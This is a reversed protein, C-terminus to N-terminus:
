CRQAHTHTRRVLGFMVNALAWKWLTRMYIGQEREWDRGIKVKCQCIILFSFRRLCCCCCFSFYWTFHFEHCRLVFSHRCFTDLRFFFFFCVCFANADGLFSYFWRIKPSRVNGGSFIFAGADPHHHIFFFFFDLEYNMNM